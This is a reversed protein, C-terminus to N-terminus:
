DLNYTKTKYDAKIVPKDESSYRSILDFETLMRTTDLLNQQIGNNGYYIVLNGDLFTYSIAKDKWFYLYESISLLPKGEDDRFFTLETVKKAQAPSFDQGLVQMDNKVQITDWGAYKWFDHIMTRLEPSLPSDAYEDVVEPIANRKSELISESQYNYLFYSGIALLIFIVSLSKNIYKKM